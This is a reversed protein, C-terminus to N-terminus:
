PPVNRSKSFTRRREALRSKVKMSMVSADFNSLAILGFVRMTQTSVGLLGSSFIISRSATAFIARSFFIMANGVVGKGARPNLPRDLEAEVHDNMGRRFIEVAVGVHDAADNDDAFVLLQAILDRKQLVRDARDRSREVAKRASRPNFVSASASPAANRSRAPSRASARPAVSPRFRNMIGPKFRMRLVIERALLHAAEASHDRDDQFGIECARPTKELVRMEKRERFAQAADLAQDIMGREHRMARNRLFFALLKPDGIRENPQRDTHFIHAIQDVIQLESERRDSTQCPRGPHLGTGRRRGDPCERRSVSWQGCQRSGQAVSVRLIPLVKPWSKRM